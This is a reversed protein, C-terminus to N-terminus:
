ETALRLALFMRGPQAGSEIGRMTAAIAGCNQHGLVMVLPIGWTSVAFEVSEIVIEDAVNGGVRIVFIDGLGQDFVIEPATRADACALVVAFPLQSDVLSERRAADQSPHIPAGRSFRRNGALLRELAQETSLQKLPFKPKSKGVVPNKGPMSGM